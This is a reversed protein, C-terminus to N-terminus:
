CIEDIMTDYESDGGSRSGSSFPRCLRVSEARKETEGRKDM